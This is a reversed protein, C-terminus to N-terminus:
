ASETTRKEYAYFRLGPRSDFAFAGSFAYGLSVILRQMASNKANTDVRLLAIGSEQAVREAQQMLQRAVGQGRWRPDVAMRHVVMAPEDLNWGVQAYEPSQDQTLAAVGAVKEQDEAQCVAVWLQGLSLDRAFIERNPYSESWQFNGNARMLPVVGRVLALIADLDAETALRLRM